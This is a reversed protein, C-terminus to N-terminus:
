WLVFMALQILQVHEPSSALSRHCILMHGGWGVYPGIMDDSHRVQGRFISATSCWM